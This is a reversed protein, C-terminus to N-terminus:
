YNDVIFIIGGMFKNTASQYYFVKPMNNTIELSILKNENFPGAINSIKNKFVYEGGAPDQTFYILENRNDFSRFIFYYRNNRRLYLSKGKVGDIALSYNTGIIKNEWFFTIRIWFTWTWTWTMFFMFTFFFTRTGTRTRTGIRTM